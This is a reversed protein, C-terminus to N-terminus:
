HEEHCHSPKPGFDLPPDGSKVRFRRTEEKGEFNRIGGNKDKFNWIVGNKDKEVRACYSKKVIKTWSSRGDNPNEKVSVEL